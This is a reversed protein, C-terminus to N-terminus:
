AVHGADKAEPAAEAPGYYTLFAEELTPEHSTLSLVPYRAALKVVPDLAGRADFHLHEDQAQVGSVGPLAAFAQAVEGDMPGAFAIEVRYQKESVIERVSGVRVLQGGRIIGVRDCIHEVESLVHSSLFATAGRARLEGVIRYFEQQNLPDLGSTPEDLILLRPEHMLAQVLGVKQKNGKSYQGFKRSLDLQLREALAEIHKPDVGGRLNGLYTLTQRGTLNPWLALEGPLYGVLAKVAVSDAQADKGFMAAQGRTPRILDMLVRITTTKGAGNPGLFGFIEGEAVDLDLDLIGLQSGYYKTLKATHIAAVASSSAVM